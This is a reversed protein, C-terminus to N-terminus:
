SCQPCLPSQHAKRLVLWWNCCQKQPLHMTFELYCDWLHGILAYGMVLHSMIMNGLSNIELLLRCKLLVYLIGFEGLADKMIIHLM